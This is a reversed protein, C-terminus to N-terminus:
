GRLGDELSVMWLSGGPEWAGLTGSRLIKMGQGSPAITSILLIGTFDLSVEETQLYSCPGGRGLEGPRPGRRQLIFGRGTLVKQGVPPLVRCQRCQCKWTACHHLVQRGLCSTCSVRTRDRPQSSGKSISITVRELTRAQSIWTRAMSLPTQCAVYLGSPRLSDSM